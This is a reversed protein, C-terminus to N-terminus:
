IVNQIIAAGSLQAVYHATLASSNGNDGQISANIVLVQTM